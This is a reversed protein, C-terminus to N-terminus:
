TTLDSVDLRLAPSMTSCMTVAEVYRGKAAAPKAKVVAEILATANEHLKETSFSLKGVPVHIVGGKDVRFEVKGAKIEEVAQAVDMTVTGTKPNPMLGRPGLVKGLRGVFKMMDPTSVVADFDLWNETQIKKVMEEGGRNKLVRYGAGTARIQRRLDYDEAVKM